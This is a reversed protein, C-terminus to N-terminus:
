AGETAGNEDDTQKPMEVASISMNPDFGSVGQQALLRLASARRHGTIVVAKGSEDRYFTVPCTQVINNMM